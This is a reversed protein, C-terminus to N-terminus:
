MAATMLDPAVGERMALHAGKAMLSQIAFDLTVLGKKRRNIGADDQLIEGIRVILRVGLELSM